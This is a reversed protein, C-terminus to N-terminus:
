QTRLTLAYVRTERGPSKSTLATVTSGVAAAVLKAEFPEMSASCWLCFVLFGINKSTNQATFSPLHPSSDFSECTPRRPQDPSQTLVDPAGLRHTM